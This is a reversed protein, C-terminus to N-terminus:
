HVQTLLRTLDTTGVAELRAVTDAIETRLANNAHRETLLKFKGFVQRFGAPHSHFGEYDFKSRELLWGNRLSVRIHCPLRDPEGGGPQRERGVHVKELLNQLEVRM